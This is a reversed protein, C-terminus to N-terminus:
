QQKGTPRGPKVKELNNVLDVLAEEPMAMLAHLGVRIVESKNINIASNLCRQRVAAILEYDGSPLTFSDRIVREKKPLEQVVPAAAIPQDIVQPKDGLLSEAKEFRSRVAEDEAKLSANLASKMSKRAM